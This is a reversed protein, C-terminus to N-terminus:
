FDAGHRSHNKYFMAIKTSNISENKGSLPCIVHLWWSMVLGPPRRLLDSALGALSRASKDFPLAMIKPTSSVQECHDFAVCFGRYSQVMFPNGETHTWTTVMRFSSRYDVFPM